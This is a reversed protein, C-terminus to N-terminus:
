GAANADREELRGEMRGVTLSVDALKNHLEETRGHLKKRDEKCDKLEANFALWMKGVAGTLVTGVAAIAWQIAEMSINM